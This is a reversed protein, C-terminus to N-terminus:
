PFCSVHYTDHAEGSCFSCLSNSCSPRHDQVFPSSISLESCDPTDIGDGDEGGIGACFAYGASSHVHWDDGLLGVISVNGSPRTVGVCCSGVCQSDTGGPWAAGSFTSGSSSTMSFHFVHAGCLTTSTTSSTSSSSSTSTSTSTSSSSSSSTSSSTSTTTTPTLLASLPGECSAHVDSQLSPSQGCTGAKGIATVLKTDVKTNCAALSGPKTIEKAACSMTGSGAKGAAKASAAPCKGGGPVDGLLVAVCSDVTSEVTGAAGPCAGAKTFAASFKAEAKTLCGPDVASGTIKAKANCSMKAAVKKGAAKRKAGACKQEPTGAGLAITAGGVLAVIGLMAVWSHVM